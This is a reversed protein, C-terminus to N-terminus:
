FVPTFHFSMLTDFEVEGKERAEMEHEGQLEM